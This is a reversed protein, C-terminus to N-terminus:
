RCEEEGILKFFELQFKELTKRQSPIQSALIQKAIARNVATRLGARYCQWFRRCLLHQITRYDSLLVSTRLGALSNDSCCKALCGHIIQHHQKLIKKVISCGIQHISNISESTVGTTIADHLKLMAPLEGVIEAAEAINNLGFCVKELSTVDKWSEFTLFADLRCCQRTSFRLCLQCLEVVFVVNPDQPDLTPVSSNEEESGNETTFHPYKKAFHHENKSISSLQIPSSFRNSDEEVESIQTLRFDEDFTATASELIGSDSHMRSSRKSNTFKQKASSGFAFLKIVNPFSASQDRPTTISQIDNQIEKSSNLAPSVSDQSQGPSFKCINNDAFLPSSIRQQTSVLEEEPNEKDNLFKRAHRRLSAKHKSINSKKLNNKCRRFLNQEPQAGQKLETGADLDDCSSREDINLAQHQADQEAIRRAYHLDNWDLTVWFETLIIATDRLCSASASIMTKRRGLRDNKRDEHFQRSGCNTTNTQWADVGDLTNPAGFDDGQLAQDGYTQVPSHEFSDNLSMLCDRDLEDNQEDRVLLNEARELCVVITRMIVPHLWKRFHVMLRRSSGLADHDKSESRFHRFGSSPAASRAPDFRVASLPFNNAATILEPHESSRLGDESNRNLSEAKTLQYTKSHAATTDFNGPKKNLTLLTSQPTKASPSSFVSNETEGVIFGRSASQYAIKPIFNKLNHALKSETLRSIEKVTFYVLKMTSEICLLVQPFDENSSVDRSTARTSPSKLERSVVEPAFCETPIGQAIYLKKLREKLWITLNQTLVESSIAFLSIGLNREFVPSVREAVEFLYRWVNATVAEMNLMLQSTTHLECGAGATCGDRSRAGQSANGQSPSALITGSFSSALSYPRSLTRLWWKQQLATLADALREEASSTSFYCENLDVQDYSSTRCRKSEDELRQGDALPRGAEVKIVSCQKGCDNSANVRLESSNLSINRRRLLRFRENRQFDNVTTVLHRLLKTFNDMQFNALDSVLVPFATHLGELIEMCLNLWDTVLMADAKEKESTSNSKLDHLLKLIFSFDVVRGADKYWTETEYIIKTEEVEDFNLSTERDRPSGKHQPNMVLALNRECKNQFTKKENTKLPHLLKLLEELQIKAWEYASLKSLIRLEELLPQLPPSVVGSFPTNLTTGSRDKIEVSLISSLVIRPTSPHLKKQPFNARLVCSLELTGCSTDRLFRGENLPFSKTSLSDLGICESLNEELSISNHASTSEFDHCSKKAIAERQKPILVFNGEVEESNNRDTSNQEAILNFHLKPSVIPTSALSQLAYDASPAQIKKNASSKRFQKIKKYKDKLKKKSNSWKKYKHDPTEEKVPSSPYVFKSVSNQVDPSGPSILSLSDPLFSNDWSLPLSISGLDHGIKSIPMSTTAAVPCESFSFLAEDQCEACSFSSNDDVSEGVFAENWQCFSSDELCCLSSSTTSCRALTGEEVSGASRAHSDQLPTVSKSSLRRVKNKLSTISSRREGVPATEPESGAVSTSDPALSCSDELPTVSNSSIISVVCRLKCHATKVCLLNYFTTLALCIKSM